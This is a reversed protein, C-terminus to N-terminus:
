TAYAGASKLPGVHSPGREPLLLEHILPEVRSWVNDGKLVYFACTEHCHIITQPDTRGTLIIVPISAWNPDSAMMDRVSLGNGAPMNVDLCALDPKAFRMLNLATLADYAAQVGLGLRHCRLALAQVLDRDDDAILITRQTSMPALAASPATKTPSRM